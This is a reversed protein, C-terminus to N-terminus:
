LQLKGPGNPNYGSKVEAGDPYGDGDTDTNLPNTHYTMVEEGDTLGDGDSDANNPNTGLKLEQDNSLGDGDSDASGNYGTGTKAPISPVTSSPTPLVVSPSGSGQYSQYTFAAQLIPDNLNTSTSIMEEPVNLPHVAEQKTPVYRGARDEASVPQSPQGQGNQPSANTTAGSTSPSGKKGLFFWIGFGAGAVILLIVIVIGALRGKM